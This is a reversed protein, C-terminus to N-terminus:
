AARRQWSASQLQAGDETRAYGMPVGNEEGSPGPGTTVPSQAEPSIQTGKDFFFGLLIGIVLGVVLTGVIVGLRGRSEMRV